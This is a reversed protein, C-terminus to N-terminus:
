WTGGNHVLFWLQKGSSCIVRDIVADTVRDGEERSGVVLEDIAASHLARFEEKGWFYHLTSFQLESEKISGLIRTASDLRTM